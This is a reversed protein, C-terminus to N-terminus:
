SHEGNAVGCTPSQRSMEPEPMAQLGLQKLLWAIM